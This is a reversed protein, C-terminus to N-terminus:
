VQQSQRIKYELKGYNVFGNCQKALLDDLLIHHLAIKDKTM